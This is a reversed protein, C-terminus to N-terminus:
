QLLIPLTINGKMQSRQDRQFVLNDFLGWSSLIIGLFDTSMDSPMRAMSIPLPVWSIRTQRGPIGTSFQGLSTRGEAVVIMPSFILSAVELPLASKREPVVIPPPGLAAAMRRCRM